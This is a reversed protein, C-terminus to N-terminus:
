DEFSLQGTDILNKVTKAGIPHKKDWPVHKGWLFGFEFSWNRDKTFLEGGSAMEFAPNNDPDVAIEAYGGKPYYMGVVGDKSKYITADQGYKVGLKFLVEPNIGRVLVSKEGVGEWQGKLPKARYGLKQLDAILQGHRQQNEHKHLPGYASIVGFTGGTAMMKKFQNQKLALKRLASKRNLWKATIRRASAQISRARMQKSKKRKAPSEGWRKKEYGKWDGRQLPKGGRAGGPGGNETTYCRDGEDGTEYFCKAKAEPPKDGPGRVDPGSMGYGKGGEGHERGATRAVTWDFIFGKTKAFADAKDAVGNGLREVLTVEVFVKSGRALDSFGVTKAKTKKFEIKNKRLWGEAEKKADTAPSATRRLLPVLHKRMEPNTSALRIIAERLTSMPVEQSPTTGAMKYNPAEGKLIAKVLKNVPPLDFRAGTYIFEEKLTQIFRDAVGPATIESKLNRRMTKEVSQVAELFHGLRYINPQKRQLKQDYQTLWGTLAFLFGKVTSPVAAQKTTGATKNKSEWQSFAKEAATQAAKQTKASGKDRDAGHVTLRWDFKDGQKSVTLNVMFKGVTVTAESLGSTVQSWKLKKTGAALTKGYGM